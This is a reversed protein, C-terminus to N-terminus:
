LVGEKVIKNNNNTLFKYELAYEEAGNITDHYTTVFFPKYEGLAKWYSYWNEKIEVFFGTGFKEKVRYKM